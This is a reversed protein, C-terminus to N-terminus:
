ISPVFSPQRGEFVLERHVDLSRMLEGLAGLARVIRDLVFDITRELDGIPQAAADGVFPLRNGDSGM